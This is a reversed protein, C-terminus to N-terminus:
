LKTLIQKLTENVERLAAAKDVSTRVLEEMVKVKKEENERILQLERASGYTDEVPRKRRRRCSVSGAAMPTNESDSEVVARTPTEAIATESIVASSEVVYPLAVAADKGYIEELIDFFEWSKRGRGTKNNNDKINKYTQKLNRMKKECGEWTITYGKAAMAEAIARWVTKKRKQHTTYNM